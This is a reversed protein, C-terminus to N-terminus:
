SCVCVCIHIHKTIMELYVIYVHISVLVAYSNCHYLLSQNGRVHPLLGKAWGLFEVYLGFMFLL